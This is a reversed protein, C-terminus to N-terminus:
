VTSEDSSAKLAARGDDTLTLIIDGLEAEDAQTAERWVGLGADRIADGLTPGALEGDELFAKWALAFFTELPTVM